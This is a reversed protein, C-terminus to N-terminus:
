LTPGGAAMVIEMRRSAMRYRLEAVKLDNRAILDDSTQCSTSPTQSPCRKIGLKLRLAATKSENAAILKELDPANSAPGDACRNTHHLTENEASEENSRFSPMTDIMLPELIYAGSASGFVLRSSRYSAESEVDSEEDTSLLSATEAKLMNPSSAGSTSVDALVGARCNAESEIDSPANTSCSGGTGPSDCMTHKCWAISIFSNGMAEM